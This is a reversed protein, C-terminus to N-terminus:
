ITAMHLEYKAELGDITLFTEIENTDFKYFLGAWWPLFGAWWPVQLAIGLGLNIAEVSEGEGISASQPGSWM